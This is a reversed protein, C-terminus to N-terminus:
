LDKIDIERGLEVKGNKLQNPRYKWEFNEIGEMKMVRSLLKLKLAPDVGDGPKAVSKSEARAKTKKGPEVPDKTTTNPKSKSTFTLSTQTRSDKKASKKNEAEKEKADEQRQEDIWPM